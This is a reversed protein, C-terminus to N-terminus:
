EGEVIEYDFKANFEESMCPTINIDKDILGFKLFIRKLIDGTDSAQPWNAYWDGTRILYLTMDDRDEEAASIIQNEIDNQIALATHSNIEFANSEAFTRDGTSTVSLSFILLLPLLNQLVTLKKLIFELSVIIILFLVSMIPFIVETRMMYGAGVKASLLLLYLTIIFVALLLAAMGSFFSRKETKEGKLCVALVAAPPCLAIMLKFLLSSRGLVTGLNSFGTKLGDLFSVGRLSDARGGTYEIIVAAIWLLLVLLPLLENKIEAWIKEREKVSKVVAELIRLAAWVAITISCYLNSFVAFYTGLLLFGSRFPRESSMLEGSSEHSALIMALSLNLLHGITYFFYCCADYAHFMYFNGAKQTRFVFFHMLLFLLAYMLSRFRPAEFKKEMFVTFSFIYLCIFASLILALSFVQCNFFSGLGLAALFGALNGCIPMLVEPLVRGPNWANPLPIAPRTNVIYNLDDADVATVPYFLTFFSIMAAFVVAMLLWM